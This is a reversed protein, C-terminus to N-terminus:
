EAVAADAPASEEAPAGDEQAGDEPPEDVEPIAEHQLETEVDAEEQGDLEIIIADNEQDDAIEQYIFSFDTKEQLTCENVQIHQDLLM